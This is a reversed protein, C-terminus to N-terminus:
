FTLAWNAGFTRPMGAFRAFTDGGLSTSTWYFKNTVNRVFLGFRWGNESELGVRVDYTTWGPIIAAPDEGLDSFTRDNYLGSAGIVVGLSSGVAFRYEADAVISVPPAFNFEKHTFDVFAGSTNVGTFQGVSTKVYTLGGHLTLGRLPIVTIDADIGKVKSKPINTLLASVGLIPVPRYTFFQKDRYDYYFGAVNLRVARDLFALKAGVEYSTIEEQKVAAFQSQLLLNNDTFTGAKFGRSALVYLLNDPTIKYNIGGRWSLNHEKQSDDAFVPLYDPTVGVDNITLCGDAVYAATPPLGAGSRFLNAVFGLTGAANANGFQCGQVTQRTETYRAGGTVTLSPTIAFDLNGFVGASRNTLDYRSDLLSGPALGSYGPFFSENRDFIKDKEYNAGIIYSLGTSPLSGSLRLEQSFTKITGGVRAVVSPVATGDADHTYRLRSDIYDTISTLKVNDSLDYDIRAIAQYQRNDRRTDLGLDFDADRNSRPQAYGLIVPNASAKAAQFLFQQDESRDYSANVNVQVQLRDTPTWDLLLRGSARNQDGNKQNNLYYGRQWEGFQTTTGALRVRLTESIPGSVFGNLIVQGFHNVEGDVGATLTDTPKAAILNISGATSNQGFLTGQPGKLVEVRELDFLVGATMPSYPIIAEDMYASVAPSAALQSANFNIGRISFIPYGVYAVGASFGPTVRPLDAVTNIGAVKLQDGTAATISLGVDSLRESRKNATVIIEGTDSAVAEAPAGAAQAQAYSPSALTILSCCTSLFIVNFRARAGGSKKSRES